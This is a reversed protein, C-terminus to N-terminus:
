PSSCTRVPNKRRSALAPLDIAHVVTMLIADIEVPTPPQAPLTLTVPIPPRRRRSPM